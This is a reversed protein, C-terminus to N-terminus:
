EIIDTLKLEKISHVRWTNMSSEMYEEVKESAMQISGAKVIYNYTVIKTKPRGLKEDDTEVEEKVIAMYYGSDIM